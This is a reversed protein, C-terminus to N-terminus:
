KFISNISRHIFSIAFPIYPYPRLQGRGMEFYKASIREYFKFLVVFFRLWSLRYSSLSEFQAGWSYIFIANSSYWENNRLLQASDMEFYRYDTVPSSINLNLLTWRYVGDRAPQIWEV